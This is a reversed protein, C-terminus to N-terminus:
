QVEMQVRRFIDEAYEKLGRWMTAQRHAYARHGSLDALRALDHWETEKKKF